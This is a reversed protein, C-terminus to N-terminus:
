KAKDRYREAENDRYKKAKNESIPLDIYTESFSATSYQPGVSFRIDERWELPILLKVLALISGDNNGAYLKNIAENDKLFLKNWLTDDPQNNDEACRLMKEWINSDLFRLIKSSQEDKDYTHAKHRNLFRSIESSPVDLVWLKRIEQKWYEYKTFCWIFDSTGLKDWLKEYPVRLKKSTYSGWSQSAKSPDHHQNIIDWDPLQWTYLEM